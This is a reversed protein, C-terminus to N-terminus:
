EREGFSFLAAIGGVLGSVLTGWFGIEWKHILVMGQAAAQALGEELGKRFLFWIVVVLLSGLLAGTSALASRANWLKMGALLLIIAGVLLLYLLPDGEQSQGNVTIGQALEMASANTIVPMNGCSVTIWPLFFCILTVLGAPSILKSMFTNM